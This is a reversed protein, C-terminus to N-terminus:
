KQGVHRTWRADAAPMLAEAEHLHDRRALLELEERTAGRGELLPYLSVAASAARDLDDLTAANDNADEVM